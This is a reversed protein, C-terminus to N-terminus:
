GWRKLWACSIFGLGFCFVALFFMGIGGFLLTRVVHLLGGM